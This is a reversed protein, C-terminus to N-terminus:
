HKKVLKTKNEFEDRKMGLKNAPIWYKQDLTPNEDNKKVEISLNKFKRLLEKREFVEEINELENSISGVAMTTWYQNQRM